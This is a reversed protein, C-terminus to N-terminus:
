ADDEKYDLMYYLKIFWTILFFILCGATWYPRTTEFKQDLYHGLFGAVLLLGFLEYALSIYRTHFSDQAPKKKTQEATDKQKEEM